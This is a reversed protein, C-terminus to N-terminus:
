LKLISTQNNEICLYEKSSGLTDIFLYNCHIYIENQSTHGVVQVYDVGDKILSAPRVWIPSQTIDDGFPSHNEGSAFKFALPKYKFLDNIFTDIPENNYGQNALWTHTVGAHSFLYNNYLFTMQMLDEKLAKEIMERIDTKQWEQFGSYTEGVPLYHYDHNGVLLVVNDPNAKKFDLLEKFNDKQEAASIDERSDFYDGIFIIKDYEEIQKWIIQKWIDRGHLDGIAIIKM